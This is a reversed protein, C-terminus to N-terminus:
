RASQFCQLSANQQEKSEQTSVIFKSQSNRPNSPPKELSPKESARYM